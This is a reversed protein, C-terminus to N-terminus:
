CLARPSAIHFSTAEHRRRKALGLSGTRAPFNRDARRDDALALHKGGCSVARALQIVDGGM